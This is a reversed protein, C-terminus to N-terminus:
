PVSDAPLKANPVSCLADVQATSMLIISGVSATFVVWLMNMPIVLSYGGAHTWTVCQPLFCALGIATAFLCAWSAVNLLIWSRSKSWKKGDKENENNDVMKGM